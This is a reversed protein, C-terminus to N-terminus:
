RNRRPLGDSNRASAADGCLGDFYGANAMERDHLTLAFEQNVQARARSILSHVADASSSRFLSIRGLTDLDRLVQEFGGNLEAITRYVHSKVPMFGEAQTQNKHHFPASHQPEGHLPELHPRPQSHPHPEHHLRTAPHLRRREPQASLISRKAKNGAM